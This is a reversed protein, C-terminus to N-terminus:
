TVGEMDKQIHNMICYPFASAWYSNPESVAWRALCHAAVNGERRVWAISVDRNAEMLQACRKAIRGWQNRPFDKHKVATVIRKSDLEIIVKSLQFREILILAEQLGTVDATIVKESANVIGVSGDCLRTAAGVCRGDERRIVLVTPNFLYLTSN